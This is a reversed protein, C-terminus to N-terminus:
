DGKVMQRQIIFFTFFLIVLTVSLLYIIESGYSNL